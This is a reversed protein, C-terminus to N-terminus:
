CPNKILDQFTASQAVKGLNEQVTPGKPALPKKPAMSLPKNVATYLLSNNDLWDFAAGLVLNVAAKNVKTAKHTKIDIVYIDVTTSTTNTFAAKDENPSWQLNGAKLNAPLGSVAFEKGTNM